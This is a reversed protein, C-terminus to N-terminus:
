HSCRIIIFNNHNVLGLSCYGLNTLYALRNGYICWSSWIKYFFIQKKNYKHRGKMFCTVIGSNVHLVDNWLTM